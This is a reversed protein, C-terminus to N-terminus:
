LYFAMAMKSLNDLIKQFNPDNMMQQQMAQFQPSAMIQQAQQM